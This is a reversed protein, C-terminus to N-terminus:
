QVITALSALEAEVAKRRASQIDKQANYRAVAKAHMERLQQEHVSNHGNMRGNAAPSPSVPVIRANRLEEEKQVYADIFSSM